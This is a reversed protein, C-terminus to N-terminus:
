VYICSLRKLATQQILAANKSQAIMLLLSKSMNNFIYKYCFPHCVTAYTVFLHVGM